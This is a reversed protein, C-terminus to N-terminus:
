WSDEAALQEVYDAMGQEALRRDEEGLEAYLAAAEEPDKSRARSGLRLIPGRLEDLGCEGPLGSRMRPRHEAM